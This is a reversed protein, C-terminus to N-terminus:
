VLWSHMLLKVAKTYVPTQLQGPISIFPLALTSSLKGRVIGLCLCGKHGGWTKNECCVWRSVSTPKCHLAPIGPLTERQISSNLSKNNSIDGQVHWWPLSLAAFSDSIIHLVLTDWCKHEWWKEARKLYLFKPVTCNKEPEFCILLVPTLPVTQLEWM